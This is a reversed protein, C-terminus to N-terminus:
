FKREETVWNPFWKYHDKPYAEDLGEYTAKALRVGGTKRDRLIMVKGQEALREVAGSIEEASGEVYQM